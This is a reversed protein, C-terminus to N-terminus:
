VSKRGLTDDHVGEGIATIGGGIAPKAEQLVQLPRHDTDADAAHSGDGPAVLRVCM